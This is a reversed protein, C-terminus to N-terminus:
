RGGNLIGMFYSSDFDSPHTVQELPIAFREEFSQVATKWKDEGTNEVCFILLWLM